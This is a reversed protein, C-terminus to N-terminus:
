RSCAGPEAARIFGTIQEHQATAATEAARSTDGIVTTAVGDIWPEVSRLTALRARTDREVQETSRALSENFLDELPTGSGTVGAFAPPNLTSPMEPFDLESLAATIYDDAERAASLQAAATLGVMLPGVQEGYTQEAR